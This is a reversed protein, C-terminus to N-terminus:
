PEFSIDKGIMRKRDIEDEIKDYPVYVSYNLFYINKKGYAVPYAIKADGKNSAFKEIEDDIKFTFFERAIFM